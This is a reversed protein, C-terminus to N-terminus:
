SKKKTKENSSILQDGPQPFSKNSTDAKIVEVEYTLLSNPLLSGSDGYGLTPHIYITRTEGEKMGTIAKRFGPVTEQLCVREPEDTHAFTTGDLYTGKYRILPTNYAEVTNGKGAKEIHYQVQGKELNVINKKTANEALFKNALITNKSALEKHAKEHAISLAELCKEEPLPPKKGAFSEKLGEFFAKQDFTLPTHQLNKGILHGMIKSLTKNDVKEESIKTLEQNNIKEEACFLSSSILLALFITKMIKEMIAM